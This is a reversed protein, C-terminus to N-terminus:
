KILKVNECRVWQVESEGDYSLGVLREPFDVSIIDRTKGDYICKMDVGWRQKDFEETTMCLDVVGDPHGALHDKWIQSDKGHMEKNMEVAMDCFPCNKM